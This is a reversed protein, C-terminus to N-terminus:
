VKSFSAKPVALIRIGPIIAKEKHTRVHAGIKSTDLTLFERPVLAENVIEYQWNMKDSVGKTKEPAAYTVPSTYIPQQILEAAQEKKGEKELAVADAIRQDEAEKERRKREMDERMERDTKHALRYAGVALAARDKKQKLPDSIVRRRDCLMKWLSHAGDVVPGIFDDEWWALARALERGQREVEALAAEGDSGFMKNITANELDVIAAQANSIIKLNTNQVELVKNEDLEIEKKM